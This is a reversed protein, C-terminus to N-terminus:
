FLYSYKRMQEYLIDRVREVIIDEYGYVGDLIEDVDKRKFNLKLQSGYLKEAIELQEEFDQCFTKARVTKMLEYVDDSLPYDMTTDSLLGAGHDFFPCYRYSGDACLIVAMNHTHRDENLFFADIALMESMYKGFEHLGTHMAMRSVIFNLRDAHDSIGYIMKSLSVGQTNEFLRELTILQEGAKLFDRSAAGKFIQSKYKIEEQEYLVYETNKLNSKQLLHSIVCESLGEYGAYDAKYWVDDREFKLQNGKSSKRNVDRKDADFLEIM